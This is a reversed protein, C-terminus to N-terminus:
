SVLRYAVIDNDPDNEFWEWDERQPYNTKFKHGNRFELEVRCTVPCEGGTWKFWKVSPM